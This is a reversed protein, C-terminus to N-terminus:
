PSRNRLIPKPDMKRPSNVGCLSQAKLFDLLKDSARFRGKRVKPPTVANVTDLKETPDARVYVEASQTSSHGLWLAVKRIDHTSELVIMACTHRLVHPSIQKEKLSPCHDCAAQAYKKLIYAFGWRTMQQQRANVFLEPVDLDGRVVLWKRLIRTTEKWLPLARERRGKGRVLISATPQLTLDQLRLGLLESVRLGAAFALQIMAYDRIGMRAQLDPTSLIAEMEERSLHPVLKSDTKKYPIALTQRIQDLAAPLKYELFRFFSKIAALRVNRTVASCDRTVELDELFKIILRPDLQELCLECPPVKLHAAAFTFLLQFSYAYTECTHPSSGRQRPLYNQLFVTIHTAIPTM